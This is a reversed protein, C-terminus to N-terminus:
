EPLLDPAAVPFLRESLERCEADEWRRLCEPCDSRLVHATAGCRWCFEDSV